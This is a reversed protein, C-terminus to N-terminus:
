AAAIESSEPGALRAHVTRLECIAMDLSARQRELLGIQSLIQEPEFELTCKTPEEKSQALMSSIETLTFGLRKGELITELRRKTAGDYLRTAGIRHPRLLGRDEYFRLARLTVGYQRAMQRITSLEDTSKSEPDASASFSNQHM